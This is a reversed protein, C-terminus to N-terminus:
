RDGKVLTVVNARDISREPESAALFGEVLEGVLKLVTRADDNNNPLNSAMLIAHQRHWAEIKM